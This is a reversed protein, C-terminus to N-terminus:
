GESESVEPCTQAGRVSSAAQLLRRVCIIDRLRSKVWQDAVEQASDGESGTAVALVACMRVANEAREWEGSRIAHEEEGLYLITRIEELRQATDMASIRPSACFATLKKQYAVWPRVPVKAVEEGLLTLATKFRNVPNDAIKPNLPASPAARGLGLEHLHEVLIPKYDDWSSSDVGSIEAALNTIKDMVETSRTPDKEAPLESQSGSPSDQSTPDSNLPIDGGTDEDEDEDESDTENESDIDSPVPSGFVRNILLARRADEAVSDTQDGTDGSQELAGIEDGKAEGEIHNGKVEEATEHADKKTEAGAGPPSFKNANSCMELRRRDWDKLKFWSPPLALMTRSSDGNRLKIPDRATAGAVTRRRHVLLSDVIQRRTHKFNDKASIGRHRCESSEKFLAAVSTPLEEMDPSLVNNDAM